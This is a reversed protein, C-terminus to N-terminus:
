KLIMLGKGQQYKTGQRDFVIEYCEGHFHLNSVRFYEWDDPILSNVCLNGNEDAGIGLLGSLVLDCFLSHNYDKGREYGGKESKWGGDELIKRSLWEGTYPHMNEDIWDVCQGDKRIRRHSAAYQHLLKYYDKKSVSCEGHKYRRLVNALAVLTQSTAFPWVPGNWLCEHDHHKMFDPHRQEATTLGYLASFYEKLLLKEFAVDKGRDPIDFYWPVYGVLECVHSNEGQNDTGADSDKKPILPVTYFFDKQWLVESMKEWLNQSFNRYYVAKEKQGGVECFGALAAADACVYSNITPRLGSGSISYEMGDRDDISYFLGNETESLKRREEFLQEMHKIRSVAFMIDGKVEIYEQIAAILWTSYSCRNGYGNLWFDIYQSIIERKDKLWRGERIHFGAPCNITNYPGAWSVDPLFETIVYGKPTKKIHKRFTWWRFYYTREIVPDPIEILPIEELLFSYAEQNSIENIHIEEDQEMFRQVYHKLKEELNM